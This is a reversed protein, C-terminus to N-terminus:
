VKKKVIMQKMHIGMEDGSMQTFNPQGQQACEAIGASFAVEVVTWTCSPAVASPSRCMPPAGGAPPVLVVAPPARGAVGLHVRDPAHSSTQSHRPVSRSVARSCSPSSCSIPHTISNAPPM